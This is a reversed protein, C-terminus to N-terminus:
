ALGVGIISTCCGMAAGTGHCGDKERCREPGPGAADCSHTNASPLGLYRPLAVDEGLRLRRMLLLWAHMRDCVVVAEM